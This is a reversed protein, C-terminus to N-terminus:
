LSFLLLYGKKKYVKQSNENCYQLQYTYASAQKKLSISISFQHLVNQSFFLRYFISRLLLCSLMQKNPFKRGCREPMM